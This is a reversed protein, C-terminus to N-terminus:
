GHESLETRVPPVYTSDVSSDRWSTGVNSLLISFYVLSLNRNLINLKKTIKASINRLERTTVHSINCYQVTTM